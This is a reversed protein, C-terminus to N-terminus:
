KKLIIDSQKVDINYACKIMKALRNAADKCIFPSLIVENIMVKTNVPIYIAKNSIDKKKDDSSLYFYFRFEEEDAYSIDKDFLQCEEESSPNFALYDMSGCLIKNCNLNNDFDLLLSAILNHVTTKICVGIEKAYCKWMLYSEKKKKSWCATPCNIIDTYPILRETEKTKAKSLNNDGVYTFGFALKKNQFSENADDFTRRRMVCYKSTELLQIFYDLRMYQCISKDDCGEKLRYYYQNMKKECNEM